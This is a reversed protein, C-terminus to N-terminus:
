PVVNYTITNAPPVAWNMRVVALACPIGPPVKNYNSFNNDFSFHRTPPVYYSGAGPTVFQGTAKTSSFLNIISTNLWLDCGTWNELLRPLNHVGGSFTATTSGASPKIGTLIAANVTTAAAANPGTSNITFSTADKWSSSQLTLADAMFASPVTATTNTSALYASNTCNYNGMVYLPNPTAVSWGLGGNAPPAIGNTLRVCSLQNANNTRCDAVYIITPYTGSGAPFKALVKSNTTVWQAYKGVDIQTVINTKVERQDEFSNTLSLFPFNTSIISQITLASSGNTWSNTITLPTDEGPVQYISPASQIKAMVSTNSVLLVVHAENFLLQQGQASGPTVGAAPFDILSHSNTMNMSVAVTPVNTKFNPSGNFSVNGPFAWPGSGNNAPAGITGTATVTGNFTLPSGSGVYISGNAHTRGNVTMTACTSFELLSNYFIAYQSLPIMALLVDEQVACTMNTYPGTAPRVNSLVRYLPANYVFLGPYQSPLPGTYNTVVGVYTQNAHGQADSFVFNKWYANESASPVNTQYLGLNAKVAGAGYGQFDYALRAIVKEVAAEATNVNAVYQNNRNNLLAVSGTRNMTAALVVISLACMVMVMILAYGASSHRPLKRNTKM